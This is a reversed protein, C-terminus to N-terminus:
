WRRAKGKKHNRQPGPMAPGLDSQVIHPIRLVDAWDPALPKEEALPIVQDELVEVGQDKLAALTAAALGLSGAGLVLVRTM